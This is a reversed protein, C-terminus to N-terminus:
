KKSTKEKDRNHIEKFLNEMKDVYALTDDVFFTLSPVIRLQHRIAAALQKKIERMREEISKLTHDPLPSNYFSLYVRAESLDPTLKVSSISVLVGQIVTLGLHQFIANLEKELVAAVQKQRKSEQM